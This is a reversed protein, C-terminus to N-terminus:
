LAKGQMKLKLQILFRFILYNSQTNQNEHWLFYSINKKPNDKFVADTMQRKKDYVNWAKSWYHNIQITYRKESYLWTFHFSDSVFIGFQNVPTATVKFHRGLLPYKVRMVHLFRSSFVPIDYDTNVICKGVRYLYDWSVIYQEIVLRDSDHQTQGSTGFMRWNIFLVPYREKTHIWEMLSTKYRPCVFEDIDLFSIWQTENRYTDYFHKYAEMQAHNYPWETLTVLGRDIYPQLVELFNDESNNNYLYFHEVGILEHYEIWEKLYPAENKFIGCISIKYKKNYKPKRLFFRFFSNLFFLGILTYIRKSTNYLHVVVKELVPHRDLLRKIRGANM